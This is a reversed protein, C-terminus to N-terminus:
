IPLRRVARARLSASKDNYDQYGYVFTQLWACDDNAAHQEGSWYYGDEFQGKLNAFLLAQERRAPLEGGAQKAFAKAKEWTVDEAAGPLLILHYSPAGADDLVIGAYHEGTQLEIQASAITVIRAAQAKFAAILAALDQHKAELDELTIPTM